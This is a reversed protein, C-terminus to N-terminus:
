RKTTVYAAELLVYDIDSNHGSTVKWHAIFKQNGNEIQKIPAFMIEASQVIFVM